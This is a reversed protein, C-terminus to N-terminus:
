GAARAALTNIRWAEARIRDDEFSFAAQIVVNRGDLGESQCSSCVLRGGLDPIHTSPGIGKLRYLEQPKRWRMRGCDGCEISLSLVQSLTAAAGSHM